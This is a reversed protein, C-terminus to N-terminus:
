EVIQNLNGVLESPTTVMTMSLRVAGATAVMNTRLRVVGETAATLMWMHVYQRYVDLRQAM